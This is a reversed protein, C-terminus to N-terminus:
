WVPQAPACLTEPDHMAIRVPVGTGAGSVDIVAVKLLLPVGEVPPVPTEPTGKTVDEELPVLRVIRAVFGPDNTIEAVAWFPQGPGKRHAGGVGPQLLSTTVNV